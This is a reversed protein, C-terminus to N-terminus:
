EYLTYLCILIIWAAWWEGKEGYIAWVVSTFFRLPPYFASLIFTPPSYYISSLASTMISFMNYVTHQSVSTVPDCFRSGGSVDICFLLWPFKSRLSSAWTTSARRHFNGRPYLQWARPSVPFIRWWGSLADIYWWCFVTFSVESFSSVVYIQSKQSM